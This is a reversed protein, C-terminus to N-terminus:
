AFGFVSALKSLTKFSAPLSTLQNKRLSLREVNQIYSVEDDPISKLNLAILKLTTNNSSSKDRSALESIITNNSNLPTKDTPLYDEKPDLTRKSSSAVM